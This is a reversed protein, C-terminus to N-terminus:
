RSVVDWVVDIIKAQTFSLSGYRLEIQFLGAIDWINYDSNYGFTGDPQCDPLQMEPHLYRRGSSRAPIESTLMLTLQVYIPVLVLYLPIWLLGDGWRANRLDSWLNRGTKSVWHQFRHLPKRRSQPPPVSTM